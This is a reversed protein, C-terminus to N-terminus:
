KARNDLITRKYSQFKVEFTKIVEKPFLSLWPVMMVRDFSKTAMMREKTITLEKIIKNEIAKVNLNEAFLIKIWKYICNGKDADHFRHNHLKEFERSLGYLEWFETLSKIMNLSYKNETIEVYQKKIEEKNEKDGKKFGAFFGSNKKYSKIIIERRFENATEICQIVRNKFDVETISVKELPQYDIYENDDSDYAHLHINKCFRAVENVETWSQCFSYVNYQTKLYTNITLSIKDLTIEWTDKDKVTWFNSNSNGAIQKAEEISSFCFINDNKEKLINIFKVMIVLKPEHSFINLIVTEVETM